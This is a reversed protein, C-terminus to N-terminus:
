ASAGAEEPTLIVVALPPLTLSLAYPRGHMGPASATVAGLNGMGSGGYATADSNLRERWVGGCPVGIRYGERPVPTFNCVALLPAGSRTLRLFSLVSM